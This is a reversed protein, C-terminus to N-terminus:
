EIIYEDFDHVLQSNPFILQADKQLQKAKKGVYRASIHTLFVQKAGAAQAVQAAQAATSHGYRRAMEEEGAEFTAEHVLAHADKALDIAQSCYRTDGLITVIKGEKDPGIFEKGNLISGDALEVSQGSKLQGLMPGKPVGAALAKDVLLQGPQDAEEIRFGYCPIVHQLTKYTVKFQKNEFAIGEQDLEIISLPYALRTGTVSLCTEIYRKIGKPGYVTLEDEGGQFNRSSLFGPLGFIHDGHLHSIFIKSVKRPKLTTRLIQQQTAEGCDFMWMENNEDLLKLMISTVNRPKSPVGAGTGLFHLKM